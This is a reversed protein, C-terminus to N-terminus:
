HCNYGYITTDCRAELITNVIFALFTETEKDRTQRNLVEKMAKLSKLVMGKCQAKKLFVQAM